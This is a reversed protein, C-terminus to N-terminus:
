GEGTDPTARAASSIRELLEKTLKGASIQALEDDNFVGLEIAKAIDATLNTVQHDHRTKWHKRQRNNLWYMGAMTDPPHHKDIVHTIVKGEHLFVKTEQHTYGLARQYLREAVNADAFTKGTLLAEAFQPHADKWESLTSRSVDFIEALEEDTAGLLLCIKRAQDVYAPDFKTPRGM